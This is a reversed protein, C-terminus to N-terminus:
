RGRFASPRCAVPGRWLPRRTWRSKIPHRTSVATQVTAPDSARRFSVQWREAATGLRGFARGGPRQVVPTAEPLSGITYQSYMEGRGPAPSIPAGDLPTIENM